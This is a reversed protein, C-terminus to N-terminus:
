RTRLYIGYISTDWLFNDGVLQGPRNGYQELCVLTGWNAFPTAYIFM